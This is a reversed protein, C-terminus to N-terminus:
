LLCGLEKFSGRAVKVRGLIARMCGGGNNLVDGFNLYKFQDVGELEVRNVEFNETRM